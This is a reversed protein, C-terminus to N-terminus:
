VHAFQSEVSGAISALAAVFTDTLALPLDHGMGPVIHLRAGPIHRAIDEGCAAPILPDEAGHMVLTPVRIDRLLLRRDGNAIIAALQRAVGQPNFGRDFERAFLDQLWIEDSPYGPSGVLRYRRIGDDIMSKRTRERPLPSFLATAADPTPGPLGHHGSSAMICTLSRVRGAHRAALIQAIAGGMSIGVVHAAAIGLADLLGLCDSAMDERSYPVVPVRGTNLAAVIDGLVPVPANDMCSSCGCDRNDFRIVRYGADVLGECIEANWRLMQAGLGMILLIAPANPSGFSEYELQINNALRAQM